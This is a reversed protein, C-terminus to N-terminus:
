GKYMTYRIQYDIGSEDKNSFLEKLVFFPLSDKFKVDVTATIETGDTSREINPTGSKEYWKDLLLDPKKQTTYSMGVVEARAMNRAYNNLAAYDVAFMGAYFIGFLFLCFIPLVLAFEVITQGKQKFKM